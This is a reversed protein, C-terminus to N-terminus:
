QEARDSQRRGHEGVRGRVLLLHTIGLARAVFLHRLLQALCAVRVPLTFCSALLAHALALRLLGHPRARRRLFRAFALAFTRLAFGFSASFDPSGVSLAIAIARCRPARM